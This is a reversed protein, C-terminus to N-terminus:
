ATMILSSMPSATEMIRLSIESETSLAMSRTFVHNKFSGFFAVLDDDDSYSVGYSDSLLFFCSSCWIKLGLVELWCFRLRRAQLSRDLIIQKDQYDGMMKQRLHSKVLATLTLIHTTKCDPQHCHAQLTCGKATLSVRKSGLFRCGM